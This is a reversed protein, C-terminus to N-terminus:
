LLITIRFINAVGSGASSFYMKDIIVGDSHYGSANGQSLYFIIAGDVTAMDIGSGTGLSTSSRTKLYGVNGGITTVTNGQNMSM